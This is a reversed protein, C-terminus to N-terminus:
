LLITLIQKGKKSNIRDALRSISAPVYVKGSPLSTIESTKRREPIEPSDSSEGKRVHTENEAKDEQEKQRTMNEINRDM